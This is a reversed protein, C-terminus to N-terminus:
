AGAAQKPWRRKTCLWEGPREDIWGELLENFQRMLDVAAPKGKLGAGPQLPEHFELEFRAPGLRKARAPVMPYGLRAAVRAPSITTPADRGFLPIDPGSDVRVDPLLGVSRGNLYRPTLRRLAEQKTVYECGGPARFTQIMHRVTDNGDPSYVVVLGPPRAGMYSALVEWNGTHATVFLAPRGEAVLARVSDAMRVEVRHRAIHALHPYEFVVAGLNAWVQRAVRRLTAPDANPMVQHLNRLVQRHKRQLPGLVRLLSAGLLAAPAAPLIRATLWMLRM